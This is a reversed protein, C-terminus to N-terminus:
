QKIEEKNGYLVKIRAPIVIDWNCDDCCEAKKDKVVPWPNNGWGDFEKGCICCKYKNISNM